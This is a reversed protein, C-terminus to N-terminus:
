SDDHDRYQLTHRQKDSPVFNIVSVATEKSTRSHNERKWQYRGVSAIMSVLM